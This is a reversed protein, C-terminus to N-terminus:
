DQRLIRAPNGVVTAGEPVDKTVVAWEDGLDEAARMCFTEWDEFGHKQAAQDLRQQSNGPIGSKVAGLEARFYDKWVATAERKSVRFFVIVRLINSSRYNNISVRGACM